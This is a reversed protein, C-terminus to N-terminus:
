LESHHQQAEDKDIKAVIRLSDADGAYVFWERAVSLNVALSGFGRYHAVGLNHAADRCGAAASLAFRAIAGDVNSEGIDLLGLNYVAEPETASAREFWERALSTSAPAGTGDKYCQGVENAARAFGGRASRLLWRLRERAVAAPSSLASTSTSGVM